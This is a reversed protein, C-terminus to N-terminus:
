SQVGLTNQEASTAHRPENVMLWYRVGTKTEFLYELGALDGVDICAVKGLTGIGIYIGACEIPRTNVVVDGVKFSAQPKPAADPQAATRLAQPQQFNKNVNETIAIKAEEETEYFKEPDGMYRWNLVVQFGPQVVGYDSVKPGRKEVGTIVTYRDGNDAQYQYVARSDQQWKDDRTGIMFTTRIDELAEIYDYLAKLKATAVDARVKAEVPRRMISLSNRSSSVFQWGELALSNVEFPAAECYEYVPEVTRCLTFVGKHDDFSVISYGQKGLLNLQDVDVMLNSSGVVAYEYVPM